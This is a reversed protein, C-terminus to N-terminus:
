IEVVILEAGADVIIEGNIVFDDPDETLWVTETYGDLLHWTNGALVEHKQEGARVNYEVM